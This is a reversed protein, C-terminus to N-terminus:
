QLEEFVVNYTWVGGEFGIFNTERHVLFSNGYEALHLALRVADIFEDANEVGQQAVVRLIVGVRNALADDNYSFTRTFQGNFYVAAVAKRQPVPIERVSSGRVVLCDNVSERLREICFDLLDGIM